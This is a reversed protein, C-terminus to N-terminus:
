PQHSHYLVQLEVVAADLKSFNKSNYNGLTKFWFAMNAQIEEFYGVEKRLTLSQGNIAM